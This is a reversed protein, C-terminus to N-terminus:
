AQATFILAEDGPGLLMTIIKEASYQATPVDFEPANPNSPLISVDENDPYLCFVCCEANWESM